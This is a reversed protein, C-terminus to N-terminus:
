SPQERNTQRRLYERLDHVAEWLRPDPERGAYRERVLARHVADYSYLRLEPTLESLTYRGRLPELVQNLPPM